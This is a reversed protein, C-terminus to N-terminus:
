FESGFKFEIKFEIEFGTESKFELEFEFQVDCEIKFEYEFESTKIEFSVLPDSYCSMFPFAFTRINTCSSFVCYINSSFFPFCMLMTYFHEHPKPCLEFQRM